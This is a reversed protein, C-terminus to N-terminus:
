EPMCQRALEQSIRAAINEAGSTEIAPDKMFPNFAFSGGPTLRVRKGNALIIYPYIVVFVSRFVRGSDPRPLEASVRNIDSVPYRGVRLIRRLVIEGGEVSIYCSMWLYIVAAALLTGLAILAISLWTASRYTISAVTLFIAMLVAAWLLGSAILIPRSRYRSQAVMAEATRSPLRLKAM